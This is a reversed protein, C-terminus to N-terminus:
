QDQPFPPLVGREYCRSKKNLEGHMVEDMENVKSVVWEHTNRARDHFPVSMLDSIVIADPDDRDIYAIVYKTSCNPHHFGMTMCTGADPVIDKYEDRRYELRAVTPPLMDEDNLEQSDGSQILRRLKVSESSTSGSAGSVSLSATRRAIIDEDNMESSVGLMFMKATPLFAQHTLRVEEPEVGEGVM